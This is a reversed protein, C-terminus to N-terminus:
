PTWLIPSETATQRPSRRAKIRLYPAIYMGRHKFDGPQAQPNGRRPESLAEIVLGAQCMGGVLQEWRHLYEVAGTERYSQDECAPLPGTHYYNIGIVYENRPTRSTVQLSTPSKHQSIYLGGDKLVRAVERFVPQVEPIYCTSVPHHVLDFSADALSSLDDMSGELIQVQLGRREAERHDLALMEPSLDLVTVHAGASAYLISQWGGGAALCLVKWGQVSAPLWGRSDLTALPKQCEADTACRAFVAGGRALRDYAARNRALHDMGVVIEENM